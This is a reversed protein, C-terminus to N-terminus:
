DISQGVYITNVHYLHHNVPTLLHHGCERPLMLGWAKERDNRSNERAKLKVPKDVAGNKFNLILGSPSNLLIPCRTQSEYFKFRKVPGRTWHYFSKMHVLPHHRMDSARWRHFGGENRFQSGRRRAGFRGFVGQNGRLDKFHVTKYTKVGNSVPRPHVLRPMWHNAVCSTFFSIRM